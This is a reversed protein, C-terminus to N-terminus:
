AALSLLFGEVGSINRERSYSFSPSGMVDRRGSNEM